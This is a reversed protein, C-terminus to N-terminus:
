GRLATIPDLRTATRAPLVGFIAGVGISVVLAAAVAWIPPTADLGPLAAVMIELSASALGLGVLGGATSLLVAETLFAWLIQRPHAGVAKLLGIEHTRESVSVLMVNMIGIGAVSLSIAAIGALAATLAAFIQSFASMVADQTILTFDEEDHRDVLIRTVGAKIREVDAQPDHQLMIRFLSNRNFLRMGTALPVLVVQDFDVGLTVGRSAMVGIVRMRFDGIRVVKGVAGTGPFLESAIGSGLVAVSSGREWDDDPLFRGTRIEINRVDRMESTCGLIMVQKSRGGASVTANGNSIPAARTVARVDRALAQADAITLDNPVGGIGPLGGTTENKGPVVILVNTGLSAFQNIVYSRAGEGLSTLIIVSAVGIAVGTMSLATRLGHGRLARIAFRLTDRITM